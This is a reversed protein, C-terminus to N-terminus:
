WRSTKNGSGEGNRGGFIFFFSPSPDSLYGPLDTYGRFKYFTILPVNFNIVVRRSGALAQPLTLTAVPFNIESISQRYIAVHM